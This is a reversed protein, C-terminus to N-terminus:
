RICDITTALRRRGKAVMIEKQKVIVNDIQAMTNKLNNFCRVSYNHASSADGMHKLFSCENGCNVKKWNQFGVVKSHIYRIWTEWNAEQFIFFM